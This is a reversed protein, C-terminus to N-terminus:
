EKTSSTFSSSLVLGSIIDLRLLKSELRHVFYGISGPQQSIAHLTTYMPMMKCFKCPEEWVRNRTQMMPFFRKQIKDQQSSLLPLLVKWMRTRALLFRSQFLTKRKKKRITTLLVRKPEQNPLCWFAFLALLALSAIIIGFLAVGNIQYYQYVFGGISFAFVVGIMVFAYQFKLKFRANPDLKYMEKAYKQMSSMTASFGVIATGIVFPAVLDKDSVFVTIYGVLGAATRLFHSLQPCSISAASTVVRAGQYCAVCLGIPWWEYM